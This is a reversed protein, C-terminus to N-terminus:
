VPQVLSYAQPKGQFMAKTKSWTKIFLDSSRYANLDAESRWHSLTYFVNSDAIDQKIEVSLCGRMDAIKPQTEYFMNLFDPVLTPNFEMRVIRLLPIEHQSM